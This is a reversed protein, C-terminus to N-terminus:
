PHNIRIDPPRIPTCHESLILVKGDHKVITVSCRQNDDFAQGHYTGKGNWVTNVVATNGELHVTYPQRQMTQLTYINDGATKLLNERDFTHGSQTFYLYHKSLVSDVMAVNKNWWGQDFKELVALVEAETLKDERKCGTLSFFLLGAALLKKM